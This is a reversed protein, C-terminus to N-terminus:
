HFCGFNSCVKMSVFSDNLLRAVEEDEFSEVEM